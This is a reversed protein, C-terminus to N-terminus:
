KKSRINYANKILNMDHYFLKVYINQLSIIIHMLQKLDVSIQNTFRSTIHSMDTSPVHFQILSRHVM